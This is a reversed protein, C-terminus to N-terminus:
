QDKTPPRAIKYRPVDQEIMMTRQNTDLVQVAKLIEKVDGRVEKVESRAENVAAQNLATQTVLDAAVKATARLDEASAFQGSLAYTAAVIGAAATVAAWLAGWTLSSPRRGNGPIPADQDRSM